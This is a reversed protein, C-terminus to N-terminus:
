LTRRTQKLPKRCARLSAEVQWSPNNLALRGNYLRSRVALERACRVDLFTVESLDVCAPRGSSSASGLTRRLPDLDRLDFEGSLVVMRTDGEPEGIRTGTTIERTTGM